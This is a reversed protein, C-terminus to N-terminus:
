RRFNTEIVMHQIGNAALIRRVSEPSVLVDDAM